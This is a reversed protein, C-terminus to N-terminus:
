AMLCVDAARGTLAGTGACDGSGAGAGLGAIARKLEVSMCSYSWHPPMVLQGRWSCPPGHLSLCYKADALGEEVQIRM